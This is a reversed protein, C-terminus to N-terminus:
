NKDAEIEELNTVKRTTPPTTTRKRTATKKAAKKAAKKTPASNALHKEIPEACTNCLELKITRTDQKLQYTLADEKGCEDCTYIIKTIRM